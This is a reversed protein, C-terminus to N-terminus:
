RNETETVTMIGYAVTSVNGEADTITGEFYYNRLLEVTDAAALEVQFSVPSESITVAEPSASSKVIVPDVGPVPVGYQQEYAQWKVTAGALDTISCDALFNVTEDNGAPISFNQPGIDSVCTTM